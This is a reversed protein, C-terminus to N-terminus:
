NSEQLNNQYITRIAKSIIESEVLSFLGSDHAKTVAECIMYVSQKYDLNSILTNLTDSNEVDIRGFLTIPINKEEM